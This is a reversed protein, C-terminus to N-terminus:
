DMLVCAAPVAGAAPYKRDGEDEEKQEADTNGEGLFVGVEKKHCYWDINLDVDGHVLVRETVFVM